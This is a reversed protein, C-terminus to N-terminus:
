LLVSARDRTPDFREIGLRYAVHRMAQDASVLVIRENRAATRSVYLLAGLHLADAGRISANRHSNLVLSAEAVVPPGLAVVAFIGELRKFRAISSQVDRHALDAQRYKENLGSILEPETHAAIYLRGRFHFDTLIEEVVDSGAEAIFRKLLASTDVYLNAPM